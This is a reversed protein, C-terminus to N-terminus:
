HLDSTLTWFSAADLDVKVESVEYGSVRDSSIIFVPIEQNSTNFMCGPTNYSNGRDHRLLFVVVKQPQDCIVGNEILYKKKDAAGTKAATNSAAQQKSADSDSCGVLLVSLFLGIVAFANKM